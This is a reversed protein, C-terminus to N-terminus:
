HRGARRRGQHRVHRESPTRQRRGAHGRLGPAGAGESATVNAVALRPPDDDDIITLTVPAVTLADAVGRVALTENPEDLDDAEPDLVFQAEASMAGAPITLTFPAVPAFDEAEATVGSVSMAVPIPDAGGAGNHRATVTVAAAEAGEAIELRSVALTVRTASEDDDKIRLTAEGQTLGTATTVVTVTADATDVDDNVPRLTFSTSVATSNAAITFTSPDIAAFGVEGDSDSGSVTMTVETDVTRAAGNLAVTVPIANNGAGESVTQQSLQVRLGTSAQDNDSLVLTAIEVQLGTATGSVSVTEDGEDTNDDQPTLTFVAAAHSRQAPITLTFPAVPAFGVVGPLGSGSVTVAVPTDSARVGGNLTATVAVAVAGGGESLTERSLSLLVEPVASTISFRAVVNGRGAIDQVRNAALEVTLEGPGAPTITAVYEWGAVEIRRLGSATGNDVTLDALEFGKVEEDFVLRVLFPGTVAGGAPGTITM